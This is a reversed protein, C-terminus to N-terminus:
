ALIQRLRGSTKEGCFRARLKKIASTEARSITQQSFGTARAIEQQTFFTGPPVMAALIALKRDQKSMPKM